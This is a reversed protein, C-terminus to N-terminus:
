GIEDGIWDGRQLDRSGLRARSHSDLLSTGAPDAEILTHFCALWRGRQVFAIRELAEHNSVVILERSGGSVRHGLPRSSDVVWKERVPADAQPLRMEHVRDTMGDYLTTWIGLDGIHGGFTEHVFQHTAIWVPVVLSKRRRKRCM